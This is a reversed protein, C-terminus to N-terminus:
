KREYNKVVNLTKETAGKFSQATQVAKESAHQLAGSDSFLKNVTTDFNDKNVLIGGGSALLAAAVDPTNYYYKGFLVPKKLIAAELFNHGGKKSISGGVFAVGAANYFAGLWGMTDALLVRAGGQQAEPKKLIRSLVAYKIGSAELTDIIQKKRELHRPAIIFNVNKLNAAAQLIVAEEEIHTSGCTVMNANQWGLSAIVHEVENTRAPSATLMDYKINGTVDVKAAGMYKFRAAIDPTQACVYKIYKFVLTVLPSLLKYRGASRQSIRGNLISVPIGNRGCAVIMNPWMDAEIIFLRHPKYADIFRKTILYFDAPMLVAKDFVAEKLANDRGAATSTTIIVPRKYFEKLGAATKAISRVEGVSAAHIWIYGKTNQPPIGLMLRQSLENNLNKLLGRRPSIFFFIIVGLGAFPFVLNVLFLIIYGM